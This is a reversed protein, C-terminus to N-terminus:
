IKKKLNKKDESSNKEDNKFSTSFYFFFFSSFCSFDKNLDSLFSFFSFTFTFKNIKNKLLSLSNM